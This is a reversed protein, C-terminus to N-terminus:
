FQFTVRGYFTDAWYLSGFRGPRDESGGLFTAFLDFYWHDGYNYKISPKIFYAGDLDYGAQLGPTLDNHILPQQLVLFIQDVTKDIRSLGPGLIKDEDGEVVAQVFELQIMMFSAHLFDPPLVQTPRDFRIAWTWTGQDRVGLGGLAGADQYPQNPVWKGEFTAVTELPSIFYNFTLGYVDTAPYEGKLNVAFPSFSIGSLDLVFDDNYVYLYNLTLYFGGLMAGVRVGYETNGRNDQENINIFPPFAPAVQFPAGVDAQQNPLVDGPNIFGEVSVDSLWTFWPVSVSYSGRVMWTPIRILEFEEPEFIFNWSYDLPNIIDLIRAGIMEGWAIQQRGARIWLRNITVDTYLEWVEARWDDESVKMMTWDAEAVDIPFANYDDLDDDWQATTDLQARINAFVKFIDTPKYTWETQLFFRSLSLDHNEALNPNQEATHIGIEYRMFGSLTLHETIPITASADRVVFLLSCLFVVLKVRGVSYKAEM